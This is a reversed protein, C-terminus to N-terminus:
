TGDTLLVQAVASIGTLPISRQPERLVKEGEDLFWVM